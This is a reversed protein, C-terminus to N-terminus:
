KSGLLDLRILTKNLEIQLDVFYFNAEKRKLCKSRLLDLRFFFYESENPHCLIKAFNWIYIQSNKSFNQLVQLFKSKM